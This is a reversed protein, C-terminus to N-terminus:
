KDRFRRRTDSYRAESGIDDHEKLRSLVGEVGMVIGLELPSMTCRDTFPNGVLRLGSFRVINVAGSSSTFSPNRLEPMMM